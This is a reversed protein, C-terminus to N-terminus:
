GQSESCGISTFTFGTMVHDKSCKPFVESDLVSLQTGTFKKCTPSDVSAPENAVDAPRCKFEVLAEDAQCNATVFRWSTLASGFPCKVTFGALLQATGDVQGCKTKHVSESGILSAVCSACQSVLKTAVMPAELKACTLVVVTVVM